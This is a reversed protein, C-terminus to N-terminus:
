LIKNKLVINQGYLRNPNLFSIEQSFDNDSLLQDLQATEEFQLKITRM